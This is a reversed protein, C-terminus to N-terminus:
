SGLSRGGDVAVVQGTVFEARALFLVAEAIDHPAGTRALPTGAVIRQKGADDMETEPWLIAGPSVGNVRVGPALERALARTLMHLGAKATSYVAHGALPREGHIDILNVIAGNSECLHPAAAQCLFFPAALNSGVLDEWQARTTEGIRTPYFSSANNVLLDLRGFAGVAERVLREPEGDLLLDASIVAASNARVANLRAALAAAESRSHRCHIVIRYGSAHLAEAIAAGIRRAAGTVLAVAHPDSMRAHHM